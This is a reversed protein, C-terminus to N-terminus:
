NLECLCLCLCINNHTDLFRLARHRDSRYAPSLLGAENGVPCAFCTERFFSVKSPM